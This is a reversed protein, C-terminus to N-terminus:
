GNTLKIWSLTDKLGTLVSYALNNTGLATYCFEPPLLNLSVQTRFNFTKVDM